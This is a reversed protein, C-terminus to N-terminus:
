RRSARALAARALKRVEATSHRKRSHRQAEVGSALLKMMVLSDNLREHEAVGMVVVRPRGNQTIVVSHGSTAVEDVLEKARNKLDSIPRIQSPKM